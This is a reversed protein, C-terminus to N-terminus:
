SKGEQSRRMLFSTCHPQAHQGTKNRLKDGARSKGGHHLDRRQQANLGTASGSLQVIGCVGRTKQRESGRGFMNLDITHM